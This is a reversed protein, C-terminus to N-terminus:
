PQGHTRAYLQRVVQEPHSSRWGQGYMQDAWTEFDQMGNQGSLPMTALPNIPQPQLSAVPTSHVSQYPKLQGQNQSGLSSLLSGIQGYNPSMNTTPSNGAAYGGLGIGEGSSNFNSGNSGKGLGGLLSLIGGGAGGSSSGSDSGSGSLAGGIAGGAAAGVPGGFLGGAVTGLLSLWNLSM